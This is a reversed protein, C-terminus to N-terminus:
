DKNIHVDLQPFPFQIGQKPLENYIRENFDWLVQWYDESKVWVRMIFQVSSDRLANLEVMPDAPAGTAIGLVRSDASSIESLVKRVEESSSGYEVDVLWEVRRM